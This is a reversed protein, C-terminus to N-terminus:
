LIITSEIVGLHGAALYYDDASFGYKPDVWFLPQDPKFDRSDDLIVHSGIQPNEQLYADVEVGRSRYLLPTIGYIPATIGLVKFYHSLLILHETGGLPVNINMFLTRHSTSLVLVAGSKDILRNVLGVCVPDITMITDEVIYPLGRPGHTEHLACYAGYTKNDFIAGVRALVSRTNNLVGDVDLFVAKLRQNEEM